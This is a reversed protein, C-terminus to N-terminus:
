PSSEDNGQEQSLGHFYVIVPCRAGTLTLPSPPNPIIYIFYYLSAKVLIYQFENNNTELRDGSVQASAM